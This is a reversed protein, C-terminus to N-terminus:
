DEKNAKKETLRNRQEELERARADLGAELGARLKDLSSRARELEAYYDNELADKRAAFEEELRLREARRKALEEDLKQSQVAEKKEFAAQLARQEANLLELKKSEWESRERQYQASFKESM